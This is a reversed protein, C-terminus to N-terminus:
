QELYKTKMENIIHRYYETEKKIVTVDDKKNFIKDEPRSHVSPSYTKHKINYIDSLILKQSDSLTELTGTVGLIIEFEHPVESYLFSGCDLGLAKKSNL